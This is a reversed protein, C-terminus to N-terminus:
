SARKRFRLLVLALGGIALLVVSSPEAVASVGAVGPASFKDYKSLVKGLDDISVTKNSDFDGQSWNMNSKDFNTLVIDLDLIDVKGDNNADGTVTISDIANRFATYGGSGYGTQTWVVQYQTHNTGTACDIIAFRPIGGTDYQAYLSLSTDDLALEVGHATIYAQTSSPSSMDTNVSVVQVPIDVKNGGRSAYYQQVNPELEQSAVGCPGCWYAFFDLVIIKGAFDHHLNYQQTSNFKTLTFDPQIDGPVLTGLANGCVLFLVISLACLLKRM